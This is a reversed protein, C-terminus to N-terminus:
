KWVEYRMGGSEADSLYISVLIYIPIDFTTVRYTSILWDESLALGIQATTDVDFPMEITGIVSGSELNLIRAELSDGTRSQVLAVAANANRFKFEASRDATVRGPSLM